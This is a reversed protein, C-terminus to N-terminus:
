FISNNRENKYSLMKRKPPDYSNNNKIDNKIVDENPYNNQWQDIGQEKFYLQAERIIKM